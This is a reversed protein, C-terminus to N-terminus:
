LQEYCARVYGDSKKIYKRIGEDTLTGESIFAKLLPVFLPPKLHKKAYKDCYKLLSAEKKTFAALCPVVVGTSAPIYKESLLVHCAAKLVEKDELLDDNSLEKLRTLLDDATLPKPADVKLWSELKEAPSADHQNFRGQLAAYEEDGDGADGNAPPDDSRATKGYIASANEQKDQHKVMANLLKRDAAVEKCAGCSACKLKVDKKKVVVTTEPNGCAPCLVCKVIFNDLTGQVKVDDFYGNMIWRDDGKGTEAKKQTKGEQREIKVGLVMGFYSLVLMPDRNLAKSIKELNMIITKSYQGKVEHKVDVAEMKYRYHDDNRASPSVSIKSHSM